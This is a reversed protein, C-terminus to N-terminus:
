LNNRILFLEQKMANHDDSLQRFMTFLESKFNEFTELSLTESKSMDNVQQAM